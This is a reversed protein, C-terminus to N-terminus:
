VRILKGVEFRVSVMTGNDSRIQINGRLERGLGEMLGIGLSESAAEEVSRGLGVGNDSISLFVQGEEHRFRVAIVGHRGAPFAHKLSNTVSENVILAIPVAQRLGVRLPQIDVQWRIGEPNDFSERLYQIIDDLYGSMEITGNNEAHSIKQHLLLMAYVRHQSSVIAELAENKLYQGQTELLSIVTQLNNKVRHNVEKLLWEKEALVKVLMENKSTIVDNKQGILQNMKKRQRNQRVLLGAIVLLVGIGAITMRQVLMTQRLGSQRLQDAQQLM